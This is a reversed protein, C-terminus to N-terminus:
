RTWPCDEPLMAFLLVNTGGEDPSAARLIGELKFGLRTLFGAVAMDTTRAEVRRLKLSDFAFGFIEGLIRRAAWRPNTSAISMECQWPTGAYTNRFDHYVVGALREGHENVVAVAYGDPFAVDAGRTAPHLRQVWELTPKNPICRLM